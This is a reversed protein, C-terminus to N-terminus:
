KTKKAMAQSAAFAKMAQQKVAVRDFVRSVADGGKTKRAQDTKKPKKADGEEAGMGREIVASMQAFVGKNVLPLFEGDEDALVERLRLVRERIWVLLRSFEQPVEEEDLRVLAMIDALHAVGVAINRQHQATAAMERKVAMLRDRKGQLFEEGETLLRRGGVGKASAYETEEIACKLQNIRRELVACANTSDEIQLQLNAVTGRRESFFAAITNPDNTGFKERIEDYVASVQRFREERKERAAKNMKNRLASPQSVISGRPKSREQDACAEYQQRDVIRLHQATKKEFEATRAKKSEACQQRTRQYESTASDRAFRSDRSILALDAIDRDQQKLSEQSQRVAPGWRMRQRELLYIIQQYLKILHTSEGSKVNARDLRNKMEAIRAEEPHVQEQSHRFNALIVELEAQREVAIAKENRIRDIQMKLLNVEHNAHKIDDALTSSWRVTLQKKSDVLAHLKERLQTHETRLNALVKVNNAVREVISQYFIRQDGKFDKGKDTIRALEAEFTQTVEEPSKARAM